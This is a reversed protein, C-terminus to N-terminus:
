QDKVDANIQTRHLSEIGQNNVLEHEMRTM